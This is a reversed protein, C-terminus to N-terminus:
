QLINLERLKDIVKDSSLIVKTTKLDSYEYSGNEALSIQVQNTSIELTNQKDDVPYRDHIKLQHNNKNILSYLYALFIERHQTDYQLKQRLFVHKNEDVWLKSNIAFELITPNLIVYKRWDSIQQVEKNRLAEFLEDFDNCHQYEINWKDILNKIVEGYKSNRSRLFSKFSRDRHFNDECLFYDTESKWTGYNGLCLLAARFNNPNTLPFLLNLNESYLKFKEIDVVGEATSSWKIPAIIQGWLYANGELDEILENWRFDNLRCRAKIREEEIVANELGFINTLESLIQRMTVKTTKYSDLIKNLALVANRQSKPKDIRQETNRLLVVNRVFRVWDYFDKKYIENQSIEHAPHIRLFAIIAFFAVQLPRDPEKLFEDWINKKPLWEIKEELLETINKLTNNEKYFLSNIDDILRRFDLKDPFSPDKKVIRKNWAINSYVSLIKDFESQNGIMWKDYDQIHENDYYQICIIRQILRKLQMEVNAEVENYQINQMDEQTKGECYKKWFYNIWDGDIQERWNQEIENGALGQLQIEEELVSKMIDFSSLQKGRANMKVYLEDGMNFEDLQLLHFSINNLNEQHPTNEKYNENILNYIEEIVVLMSSISSDYRWQWKFWGLKQIYQFLSITNKDNNNRKEFDQVIQSSAHKVLENCFDITSQKTTYSLFAQQADQSKCNENEFYWHLLFLTTLRQQGDLPEFTGEKSYGYVFDLHLKDDSTSYVIKLLENLFSRRIETVRTTQRGEAYDRQISPIRISGMENKLSSFNKEFTDM